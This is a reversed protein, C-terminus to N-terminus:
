KKGKKKVPKEKEPKIVTVEHKGEFDIKQRIAFIEQHGRELGWAIARWDGPVDIEVLEGKKNLVKIKCGEGAKQIVELGKNISDYQAKKISDFFYPKSDKWDYFTQKSIDLLKCVNTISIGSRLGKMIADVIEPCYKM